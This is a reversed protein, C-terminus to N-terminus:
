RGDNLALKPGAVQGDAGAIDLRDRRARVALVLAVAGAQHCRHLLVDAGGILEPRQAGCARGEVGPEPPFRPLARGGDSGRRSRDAGRLVVVPDHDQRRRGRWGEVSMGQEAARPSGSVHPSARLRQSAATVDASRTELRAYRRRPLTRSFTERARSVLGLKTGSLPSKTSRKLM